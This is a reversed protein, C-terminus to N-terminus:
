WSLMILFHYFFYLEGFIYSSNQNGITTNYFSVFKQLLSVFSQTLLEESFICFLVGDHSFYMFISAFVAKKNHCSKTLYDFIPKTEGLVFLSALIDGEEGVLSPEKKKLIRAASAKFNDELLKTEDKSNPYNIRMELIIELLLLSQPSHPRDNFLTTLGTIILRKNPEDTSQFFHSLRRKMPYITCTSYRCSSIESSSLFLSIIQWWSSDFSSDHPFAKALNLLSTFEWTTSKNQVLRSQLSKPFSLFPVTHFNNSSIKWVEDILTCCIKDSSVPSIELSYEIYHMLAICSVEDSINTATRQSVNVKGLNTCIEFGSHLLSLVQQFSKTYFHNGYSHVSYSASREDILNLAMIAVCLQKWKKPSTLADAPNEDIVCGSDSFVCGDEILRIIGKVWKLSNKFDGM